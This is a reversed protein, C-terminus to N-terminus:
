GGVVKLALSRKGRLTLHEECMAEVSHMFEASSLILHHMVPRTPNWPATRVRKNGHKDLEDAADLVSLRAADLRVRCRAFNAAFAGHRAIARGFAERELARRGMLEM